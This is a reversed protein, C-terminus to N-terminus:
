LIADDDVAPHPVVILQDITPTRMVATAGSPWRIILEDVHTQQGLGFHAVPEMQCQYGSGGDIVQLRSQGASVMTVTAGRAPAGARTLPRVRLWHNANAPTKYFSLPQPATEGHAIM